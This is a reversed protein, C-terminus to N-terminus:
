LEVTIDCNIDLVVESLDEPLDEVTVFSGVENIPSNVITLTVLPNQIGYNLFVEGIGDLMNEVDQKTKTANFTVDLINFMHQGAELTQLSNCTTADVEIKDFDRVITSIESIMNACQIGKNANSEISEKVFEGFKKIKVNDM